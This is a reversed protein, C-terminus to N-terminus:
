LVLTMLYACFGCYSIGGLIQFLNHVGKYWRSWGMLIIFIINFLHGLRTKVFYLSMIAMTFVTASMHGSPFGNADDGRPGNKSLFDSNAAGRPRRTIEWMFSPYPIRKIIDTTITTLLLGIFCKLYFFRQPSKKIITLYFFIAYFALPTASILDSINDLCYNTKDLIM